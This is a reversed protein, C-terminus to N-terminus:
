ARTFRTIGREVADVLYPRLEKAPIIRDLSGVKLAREVSHIRDFEDGVEGLKESKVKATIEALKLRPAGGGGTAAKEAEVVRPDKRTRTDVERAFVVAAAPAGGIVSARAGEVAVIEIDERLTKAFVVFAGGHYRSVVCFVFPGRFNVVARGIEAGYELQLRRMSEPSGDFGSLNALVVVPRNGSASNVARAIKKSSQPFLTGASWYEPGDAPVFELRPLPRSQIGILCVPHGGLHADWVVSTDGGRLNKWRELPAHDQDIAAAMIHRIEFPKKRDPNKEASFVDGVTTFGAGGEPGHPFSRVDRDKPDQTAAPRPFREGPALYTHEYWRMLIHAAESVSGARYQAQGNPGMIRDYGGIGENDEASVSGSYELAQKGTLVMSSGAAMVLIGKTHMLMTAEANWYPQAGVTIGLVVVNVTNGAQTFEILKRLVKSVWDMNETGSTMSIKAGACVEWWEFPARLKEALCLAEYIRRCEPEAVSGMEKGPDGLVIVRKMGELYRATFSTVVGVVVNATNSGPPRSVPVLEQQEDLDYEAFDGPPLDAQAGRPPALMRVIEFPHTLGRRRLQIVKQQYEAMPELPRDTPADWKISLGGDTTVVRLLTPVLAGTRTDPVRCDVLLMELGAGETAPVLREALGQVEERSLRIPPTITLIVRNWELRQNPARRAQFRRMGATAEQLVRELHPLGVVKGAADRVPTLDRVEAMAFLREDKPNAQAVARFLHVDQASPLRELDFKALRKLQLRGALMPHIGRHRRDEAFAPGGRFTFHLQSADRGLGRGGVALVVTARRVPRPFGAAGLAALLTEALADLTPPAEEAYLYLEVVLDMAAPVDPALRAVKQAARGAEALTAHCALVRTRKDGRQYEAGACSLGDGDQAAPRELPRARYYRRLLTEVLRARLAPAAGSMRQILLTALPQPVEVLREILAEREEGQATALRALDSEAQAYTEARAKELAPQDFLRYRVERALDALAPVREEGLAVLRELLARSGESFGTPAATGALRRELIGQVPALQSDVREHSKQMRLLALELARGPEDLSLGYHALARRLMALFSPTLGEGGSDPEHLYRWLEELPPPGPEADAPRVRSFLSRLDAFAALVRDEARLIEPDEETVGAFTEAWGKGLRKAEAEAVDFGLVLRLAEELAAAARDRPASPEPAKAALALPQPTAAPRAEGIPDLRLLPAGADVQGNVPVLVERVVGAMPARVEIEVKMSEVRAVPEGEAVQQGPEVPIAVVVAPMPSPVLGAPERVVVHPMGDVEVLLKLGEGTSLVRLRRGQWALRAELRGLRELRVEAAAGGAPAVRYSEPGIQRVELRHRQGRYRLEVARGSSPGVKPRGRRAEALFRGRELDLEAEYAEIAAVVLAAEPRHAVLPEGSASIREVLGVGAEGSRVEPRACLALLWARSSPSGRLVADTGALAQELRAWADARSEGHAVIRAIVGGAGGPVEDGEEVAADARVDPDSPLRLLEVRGPASTVGSDPDHAVIRAAVAHRRAAPAEAELPAGVALRLALRVVDTGVAAEVAPASQALADLGALALKRAGPDYALRVAVVGVWGAAAAARLALDRAAAEEGIGLVPPPSETLVAVEGVRLSADGLGLARSTGRRDRAVLVEVLHSAPPLESAAAVGVGLKGALRELAGPAALQRLAEAPPGVLQAGVRACADAFAAREALTAPGLWVTDARAARLTDEPTEGRESAEDADRVFRTLRDRPGHVAVAAAAQGARALERVARLVRRGGEGRDVVAVRGLGVKEM